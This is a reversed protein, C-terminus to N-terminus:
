VPLEPFSSLPLGTTVGSENRPRCDEIVTSSWWDLLEHNPFRAPSAICSWTSPRRYRVRAEDVIALGNALDALSGKALLRSLPRELTTWRQDQLRFVVIGAHTGPPYQRIDAFDLDFTLLTCPAVRM